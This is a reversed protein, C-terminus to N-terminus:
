QSVHLFVDGEGWIFNEKFQDVVKFFTNDCYDCLSYSVTIIQTGKPLKRFKEILQLITEDSLCTGYLYIISAKSFDTHVFDELRFEVGELHFRNKVQNARRIFEPVYDIGVVHCGKFQNVWFCTRGRGCGLEFISDKPSISVRNLIRDLTTLPTEGYTHVDLEGKKQLYDKSVKFPNKFFYLSLLYLDLKLFVLKGYYKIVVKCYEVLQLWVIKIKIFLLM